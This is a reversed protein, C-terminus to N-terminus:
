PQTVQTTAISGRVTTATISVPIQDNSQWGYTQNYTYYKGPMISVAPSLNWIKMTGNNAQIQNISFALNGVNALTVNIGHQSSYCFKCFNVNQIVLNENLKNTNTATVNALNSEFVSLNGNSWAVLSTGMVSVASLMIASTVVTSLGRRYRQSIM